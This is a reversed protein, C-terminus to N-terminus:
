KVVVANLLNLNDCLFNPIQNFETERQKHCDQEIEIM